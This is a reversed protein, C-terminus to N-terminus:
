ASPKAPRRGSAPKLRGVARAETETLAARETELAEASVESGAIIAEYLDLYRGLAPSVKAAKRANCDSCMTQLNDQHQSGRRSEPVIHDKTLLVERGDPRRGWFNFHAQTPSDSSVTLRFVRGAIGCAVCAPMRMFLVYRVSRLSVQYGNFQVTPGLDENRALAFVVAPEYDGPVHFRGRDQGWGKWQLTQRGKQKPPLKIEPLAVLTGAKVQEILDNIESDALSMLGLIENQLDRGAAKGWQSPQEIGRHRCVLFECKNFLALAALAQEQRSVTWPLKEDSEPM